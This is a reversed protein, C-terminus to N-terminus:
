IYPNIIYGSPYSEIMDEIPPFHNTIMDVFDYLRDTDDLFDQATGIDKYKFSHIANRRKQIKEVWCYWDSKEDDWLIGTSYLKLPEISMDEPEVVTKKRKNVNPNKLYDEYYVSYFFKLWSEVIAGLNTRALILEGETMQLGKEIWINLCDTLEVLWKLMAADMKIEVKDPAIGHTKKWILAQNNTINRLIEYKSKM